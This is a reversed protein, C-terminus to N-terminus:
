NINKFKIAIEFGGRGNSAPRLNSLNADYSFGICYNGLDILSSVIIADKSRYYIGVSAGLNEYMGTYKSANRLDYRAMCGVVAVKNPGQRYAMFGPNFALFTNPVSILYNGHLVWKAYLRETDDVFSYVPRNWHMLAIGVHGENFNNGQVKIRGSYNNFTWILGTSADLYNNTMVGYDEGTAAMSNFAGNEFQSGWQFNQANIKRNGFGGGFALGLRNYKNLELHYALALTASTNTLKGDGTVDNFFQLGVGFYKKAKKSKALRLMGSAAFTKYPISISRWQSRYNINAEVKNLAGAFAPNQILPSLEFQSFHIDQAYTVLPAYFILILIRIYLKKIM